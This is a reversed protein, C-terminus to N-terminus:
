SGRFYFPIKVIKQDGDKSYFNKRIELINKGELFGETPIYCLIGNEGRNPNTFYQFNLNQFAQDNVFIQNFAVIKRLNVLDISDRMEEKSRIRQLMSLEVLNMQEKEREITPIFLKIVKSDVVDSEIVPTFIRNGENRLNDYNFPFIQDPFNNFAVYKEAGFYRYIPNNRTQTAGTIGLFFSVILLVPIFLKSKVNSTYITTIYGIPKQFIYFSFVLSTNDSFKNVLNVIKQNEPYKKALYQLTFTFVIFIVYIAIGIHIVYDAIIPFISILLRFLQYAVLIFLSISTMMIVTVTALSFILSCNRDLQINYASLNPYKEKAKKWYVPGAGFKSNVDVGNPYVSNLGLLAVWIARFLFHVAFFLILCDIGALILMSAIDFFYFGLENSEVIYGEVWSIFYDPLQFLGAILLGSILLEAQWSQTELAKLWKPTKKGSKKKEQDSSQNEQNKQENEM